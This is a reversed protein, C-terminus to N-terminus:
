LGKRAREGSVLDALRRGLHPRFILALWIVLNGAIVGAQPGAVVFAALGLLPLSLWAAVM